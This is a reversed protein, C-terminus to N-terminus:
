IMHAYALIAINFIFLCTLTFHIVFLNHIMQKKLIAVRCAYPLARALSPFLEFLTIAKSPSVLLEVNEMVKALSCGPLNAFSYYELNEDM